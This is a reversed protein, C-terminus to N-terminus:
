KGLIYKLPRTIKRWAEMQGKDTGYYEHAINEMSLLRDLEMSSFGLKKSVFDFDEHMLELDYSPEELEIVAEEKSLQSAFILNSLHAKRKDIKFKRPLIYGQYFRTFTNEFHKGGYERWGYEDILLQKCAEKDYDVWNLIEVLEYKYFSFYKLKEVFGLSPLKTLREEGFRKHINVLNVKDFKRYNWASPLVQETEVNKGSLIYKIKFKHATAMLAGFIMHDAPVDLDLVSAKFYARQLDKFQRWDMVYTYLDFDLKKTLSEINNVALDLNWGYDFHVVLPNLDVTKALHCLYSSDVGGSLGIICDYKGKRSSKILEIQEKFSGKEYQVEELKKKAHLFEHYYNCIGNEDFAINPDAITDMVSITCQQYPRGGNIKLDKELREQDYIDKFSDIKM